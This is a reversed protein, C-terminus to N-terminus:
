SKSKSVEEVPNGYIVEKLQGSVREKQIEVSFKKGVWNRYDKGWAKVFESITTKNPQYIKESNDPLKVLIHLAMKGFKSEEAPRIKPTEVVELVEGDNIDKPKLFQKPLLENPIEFTEKVDTMNIGGDNELYKRTWYTHCYCCYYLEDGFMEDFGLKVLWKHGYRQCEERKEQIGV